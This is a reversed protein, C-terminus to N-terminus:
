NALRARVAASVEGMDAKGALRGKLLGMVKGMEQPSSAGTEALAADVAAAIAEADLMAPMYAGIVDLEYREVDALDERGAARYQDISDRRQKVMKQLVGTVGADDLDVRDDIERQKVAAIILRIASLRSRDGERLAAKMDQQIREKLPQPVDSM